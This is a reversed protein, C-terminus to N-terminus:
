GPPDPPCLARRESLRALALAEEGNYGVHTGGRGEGQMRGFIGARSRAALGQLPTKRRIFTNARGNFSGRSTRM